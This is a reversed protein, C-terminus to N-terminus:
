NSFLLVKATGTGLTTREKELAANEHRVAYSRFLFIAWVFLGARAIEVMQMTYGGGGIM